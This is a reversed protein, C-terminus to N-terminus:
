PPSAASGLCRCAQHGPPFASAPACCKSPLAQDRGVLGTRTPREGGERVPHERSNTWPSKDLPKAFFCGAVAHSLLSPAADTLSLVSFCWFREAAGCTILPVAPPSVTSHVRVEFSSPETEARPRQQGARRQTGWLDAAFPWRHEGLAPIGVCREIGWVLDEGGLRDRPFGEDLPRANRSPMIWLMRKIMADVWAFSTTDLRWLGAQGALKAGAVRDM